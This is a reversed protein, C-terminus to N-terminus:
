RNAYENWTALWSDVSDLDSKTLLICPAHYETEEPETGNVIYEYTTKVAYTGLGYPDQATTGQLINAESKMMDVMAESCDIAFAVANNPNGAAEIANVGGTCANECAFYFVDIDPNATMIDTTVTYAKDAAEGDQRAVITINYDSLQDLFGSVRGESGYADQSDFCVIAMKIEEEKTFHEEFYGLAYEGTTKGLDYCDNLCSAFINESNLVIACAMVAAGAEYATDAIAASTDPNTPEIIIGKAGAQLMNNIAENEKEASHQSNATIIEIGLEAAADKYGNIMVQTFQDEQLGTAGIIIKEEAFASFSVLCLMMALLIALTKKM